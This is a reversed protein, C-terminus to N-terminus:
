GNVSRHVHKIDEDGENYVGVDYRKDTCPRNSAREDEELNLDMAKGSMAHRPEPVLNKESPGTGLNALLLFAGATISFALAAGSFWFAAERM